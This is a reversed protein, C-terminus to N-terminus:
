SVAHKHLTLSSKFYKLCFECVYLKTLHTHDPPYPSPYWTEIEYSGFEIMKLNYNVPPQATPTPATTKALEATEESQQQQKSCSGDKDKSDKSNDKDKRKRRETGDKERKAESDKDTTM